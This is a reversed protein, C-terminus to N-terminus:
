HVKKYINKKSKEQLQAVLIIAEKKTLHFMQQLQEVHEKPDKHIFIKEQFGQLVLVIEGKFDHKLLESPLAVICEEYIKTMERVLVVPIEPAIKEMEKLTNKVRVPSEFCITAGPYFYADILQKRRESVRKSLFGIYQFRDSIGSLVFAGIPASPGPIYTYPLIEKQCRRILDRGPDSIGPTGADSVLAIDKEKKLEEIIKNEEKKENFKHFSKLPKSINYHKLLIQTRRTDECLIYHVKQLTELGRLTIDKLNGIPTAVLYLMSFFTAGLNSSPFPLKAPEQRVAQGHWWLIKIAYFKECFM